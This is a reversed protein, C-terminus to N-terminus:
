RTRVGIGLEPNRLPELSNLNVAWTVPSRLSGGLPGLSVWIIMLPITKIRFFIDVQLRVTIIFAVGLSWIGDWRFLTLARIM